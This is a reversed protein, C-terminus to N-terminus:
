PNVMKYSYAFARKEHPQSEYKMGEPVKRGNWYHGWGTSELKGTHYDSIHQFEHSAIQFLHAGHLNGALWVRGPLAAGDFDKRENRGVRFIRITGPMPLNAAAVIAAVRIVERQRVTFKGEWIVKMQWEEKRTLILGFFRVRGFGYIYTNCKSDTQALIPAGLFERIKTRMDKPATEVYQGTSGKGTGAAM